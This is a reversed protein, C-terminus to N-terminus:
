KKEEWKPLGMIAERKYRRIREETVALGRSKLIGTIMKREDKSVDPLWTAGRNNRLADAYTEDRDWWWGSGMAEGDMYLNALVNRLREDNVPKGPELNDLVKQYLDDPMRKGKGMRKFLSEVKSVTVKAANGGADLYKGADQTQKDTLGYEFSFSDIQQQEVVENKDIRRRLENLAATNQPTIQQADKHLSNELVERGKDSLGKIQDIGAIAQSPLLGKKQVFERYQRGLTQDQANQRMVEISRDANFRNKLKTRLEVDEIGELWAGAAMDAEERPLGQLNQRLSQYATDLAQSQREKEQRKELAEVQNLLTIKKDPPLHTAVAADNDGLVKSAYERTEKPMPQGQKGAGTKLFADYNGPGWNYAALAKRPDGGYKDLMQKLYRIGGDINQSPDHPNTVGLDKATDPMLQFLGRAGAKSIAGTVGRSEQWAVAKALEPDVGYNVARM